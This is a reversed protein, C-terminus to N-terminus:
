WQRGNRDEHRGKHGDYLVCPPAHNTQTEYCPKRDPLMENSENMEAALEWLPLAAALLARDKMYQEHNDRWAAPNIVPSLMEVNEISSLFFAIDHARVIRLAEVAAAVAKKYDDSELLM